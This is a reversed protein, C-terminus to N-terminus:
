HHQDLIYIYKIPDSIDGESRQLSRVSIMIGDALTYFYPPELCSKENHADTRRYLASVESVVIALRNSDPMSLSRTYTFNIEAAQRAWKLV